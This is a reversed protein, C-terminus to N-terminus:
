AGFLVRSTHSKALRENVHARSNAGRYVLAHPEPAATLPLGFDPVPGFGLGPACLRAEPVPVSALTLRLSM